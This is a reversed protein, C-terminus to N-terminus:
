CILKAGTQPLSFSHRRHLFLMAALIGAGTLTLALPSPEPVAGPLQSITLSGTVTQLGGNGLDALGSLTFTGLLFTPSTVPGSFLLPGSFITGGGGAGGATFFTVPGTLTQGEFTASVSSLTFSTGAVTSSPTPSASISATLPGTIQPSLFTFLDITDARAVTANLAFSVVLVSLLKTFRLM